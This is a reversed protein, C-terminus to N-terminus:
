KSEEQCLPRKFWALDADTFETRQTRRIRAALKVMIKTENDSVQNGGTVGLL